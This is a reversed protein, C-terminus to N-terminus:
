PALKVTRANSYLSRIAYFYITMCIILSMSDVIAGLAFGSTSTKVELPFDRVPFILM